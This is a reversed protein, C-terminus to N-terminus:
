ARFAFQINSFWAYVLWCLSLFVAVYAVKRERPTRGFILPVAGWVVPVMSMPVATPNYHDGSILAPYLLFAGIQVLATTSAWFASRDKRQGEEGSELTPQSPNTNM